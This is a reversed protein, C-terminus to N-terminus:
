ESVTDLDLVMLHMDFFNNAIKLARRETGYIKFGFKQYTKVAYQNNTWCKLNLQIVHSKAHNIVTEMLTRLIGQRRFKPITYVGWIIGRHKTKLMDMINFCITAVLEDNIFAGFIDNKELIEQWRSESYNAEEEYSLGFSEPVDQLAELRLKKWM